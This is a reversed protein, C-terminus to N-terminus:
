VTFFLLIPNVLYMCKLIECFIILESYIATNPQQLYGVSVDSEILTRKKQWPIKLKVLLGRSLPYIQVKPTSFTEAPLETNIQAGILSIRHALCPSNIIATSQNTSTSKGSSPQAPRWQFM